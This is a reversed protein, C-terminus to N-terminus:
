DRQPSPQAAEALSMHPLASLNSPGTKELRSLKRRAVPLTGLRYLIAGAERIHYPRWRAPKGAVQRLEQWGRRARFEKHLTVHLQRYFATTFPGQYMMSLDASDTWNQKDGLQMQVKEYFRTGPLPYSVSMGIDDPQCDRVMQLTKEIDARTEGPYGFQLFFGVRVGAARLQGAAEYIQAVTTGKEMANLIHQAGSEAGLWVIDCGAHRLAHVNAPDRVILDARSLCKFPLRIQQTEVAASFELWWGPKLGMIDDAFWIHDPQYTDQLWKMEAAVNQPSRSNYRQGWIPKACWNCHYPCGRTTVMNMSYYGHKEQWIQRYRPVDVLDWAPFPLRDIDKLSPRRPNRHPGDPTHYALGPIAACQDIALQWNDSSLQRLLEALTEEGEGLLVYDAGANLYAEAHDTADSGCVIVQCGRAQAMQIMTFAAERMNLLCMKSLYNFNDEYIVAYRPGHYDLAQAWEEPSAALMADFLAVSYGQARMFSAAYLTGLPPYPQMAAWLKPDFRLYYSQGFLIDTM